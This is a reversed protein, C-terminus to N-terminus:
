IQSKKMDPNNANIKPIDFIKKVNSKEDFFRQLNRAHMTNFSLWAFYVQSYM